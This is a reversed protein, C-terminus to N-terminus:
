GPYRGHTLFNPYTRSFGTPRYEDHVDAVMQYSAVKKIAEHLWATVEQNGVQVFGFKIGAVGWKKISQCCVTLNGRWLKATLM